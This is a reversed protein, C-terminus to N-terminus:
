ETKSNIVPLQLDNDQARMPHFSYVSICVAVTVEQIINLVKHLWCYLLHWTPQYMLSKEPPWPFNTEMEKYNSVSQGTFNGLGYKECTKRVLLKRERYVEQWYINKKLFDTSVM